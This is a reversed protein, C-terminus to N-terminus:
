LQSLNIHSVDFLYDTAQKWEMLKTKNKEIYFTINITLVFYLHSKYTNQNLPTLRM